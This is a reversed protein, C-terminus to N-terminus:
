NLLYKWSAATIGLWYVLSFGAAGLTLALCVGIILFDELHKFFVDVPRMARDYGDSFRRYGVRLSSLM